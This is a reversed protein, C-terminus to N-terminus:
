LYSLRHLRPKERIKRLGKFPNKGDLALFFFPRWLVNCKNCLDCSMFGVLNPTSFVDNVRTVLSLHCFGLPWMRSWHESNSSEFRSWLSLNAATERLQELCISVCYRSYGAAGGKWIREFKNNVMRGGRHDLPWLEESCIWLVRTRNGASGSKRLFPADPVPDV